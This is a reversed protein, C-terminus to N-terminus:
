HVVIILHTIISYKCSTSKVLPTLHTGCSLLRRRPTM